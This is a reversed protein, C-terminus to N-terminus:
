PKQQATREFIVDGGCFRSDMTNSVLLPGGSERPHRRAHNEDGQAPWLVM